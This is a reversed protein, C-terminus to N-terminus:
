PYAWVWDGQDLAVGNKETKEVRGGDDVQNLGVSYLVFRRDPELRYRLPRGAYLDLPVRPLYQPVLQELQDPYAGHALRYRELACATRALTLTTQSRVAKTPGASLAPLLLKALANNPTTRRFARNWRNTFSMDLPSITEPQRWARELHDIMEQQFRAALAQNRYIMWRPFLVLALPSLGGSPEREAEAPNLGRQVQPPRQMLQEFTANMFAREGRLAQAAEALFDLRGLEQDLAALQPEDWCRAALGEWVPQLTIEHVSIRVLFTILVPESKLAELFRLNVKLDSLAEAGRGATVAASAHLAMTQAIGKALPLYPVFMGPLEVDLRVPFQAQPRQAAARLEALQPDLRGLALLVGAALTQPPSALPDPPRGYYDCWAQWDTLRGLRWSGTPPPNAKRGQRLDVPNKTNKRALAPALLPTAAFNQDPPIPAPLFDKVDLKEGRAELEQRCRQWLRGARWNEEANILFLLTALCVAVFILVRLVRWVRRLGSPRPKPPPASCPGQEPVPPANTM